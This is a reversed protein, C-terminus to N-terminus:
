QKANLLTIFFRKTMDKNASTSGDQHEFHDTQHLNPIFPTHCRRVWWSNVVAITTWVPNTELTKRFKISANIITMFPPYGQLVASLFSTLWELLVIFEPDVLHLVINITSGKHLLPHFISLDRNLRTTTCTVPQWIYCKIFNWFTKKKKVAVVNKPFSHLLHIKM